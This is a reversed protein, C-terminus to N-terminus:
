LAAQKKALDDGQAFLTEYRKALSDVSQTLAAVNKDRATLANMRTEADGVSATLAGVRADFAEFEKKRVGLMDVQARVIDLLSTTDKARPRAARRTPRM